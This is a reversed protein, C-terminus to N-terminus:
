KTTEKEELPQMMFKSQNIYTAQVDKKIEYYYQPAWCLESSLPACRMCGELESHKKQKAKQLRM